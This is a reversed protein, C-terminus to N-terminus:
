FHRPLHLTTTNSSSANLVASFLAPIVTSWGGDLMWMCSASEQDSQRVEVSRKRGM